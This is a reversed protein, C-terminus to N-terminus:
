GISSQPSSYQWNVNLFNDHFAGSASLAWKEWRLRPQKVGSGRRNELSSCDMGVKPGWDEQRAAPRVANGGCSDVHCYLNGGEWGRVQSLPKNDSIMADCISQETLYAGAGAQGAQCSAKGLTHSDFGM